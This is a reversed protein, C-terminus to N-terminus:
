TRKRVAKTEAPSDHVDAPPAVRARAPEKSEARPKPRTKADDDHDLEVLAGYLGAVAALYLPPLATWPIAAEAGPWPISIAAYSSALWYLIAASVVGVIGKLVAELWAGEKWPARGAFIGTTGGVGLAFLYSLLGGSPTPWRLGFTIGAGIAAGILLGKLLGLGLRKGV